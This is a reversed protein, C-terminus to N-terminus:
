VGKNWYWDVARNQGEKFGGSYVHCKGALAKPSKVARLKELMGPSVDDVTDRSSRPVLPLAAGCQHCAWAIQEKYDPVDKKWWTPDTADWGDPGDLMWALMGAVECFYAGKPTITASWTNQLWCDAIFQAQVTVDAIVEDMAVLMPTHTIVTTHDNYNLLGFTSEILGKHEQYEKTLCNTFIGCLGPQRYQRMVYCLEDFRPHLTPEGGIFGVWGPFDRLAELYGAVAVPDAYFIKDKTFHGCFRCCNSCQRNCRNTVEIQIVASNVRGPGTLGKHAVPKM